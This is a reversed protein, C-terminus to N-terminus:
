NFRNWIARYRQLLDSYEVSSIRLDAQVRRLIPAESLTEAEWLLLALSHLIKEGPHRSAGANLLIAPGFVLANALCSRWAKQEPCKGVSSLAYERASLFPRRLRRSELWLWLQVGLAALEEGQAKLTEVPASTRYPHLKFEVGVAHNRRIESSWPLNECTKLRLLRDQRELCSHHYQGFATLVADGFALQAKAFNRGVFDADEATFSQRHLRERAFLLGSCRNMMLRTAESLPLRKADHHHECGGLLSENGRLWRHGMVLDYYFMAPASHRLRALSFIKFEVEVRAGASLRHALEHLAARYRRENLFRNGRLCVYFELDNYPEDGIQTRLVGGEGRGYGGGLLLAELKDSPVIDQVGDLVRKCTRALHSELEDSGDLTFRQTPPLPAPSRREAVRIDPLTATNMAM